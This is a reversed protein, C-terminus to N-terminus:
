KKWYWLGGHSWTDPGCHNLYLAHGTLWADLIYLGVDYIYRTNCMYFYAVIM